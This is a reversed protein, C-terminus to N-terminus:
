ATISIAAFDLSFFSEIIAAAEEANPNTPQKKVDIVAIYSLIIDDDPRLLMIILPIPELLLVLASTVCSTFFINPGIVTPPIKMRIAAAATIMNRVMDTM